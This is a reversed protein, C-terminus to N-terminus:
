TTGFDTLVNYLVPLAYPLIEPDDLNSIISPLRGANVLRGRNEDPVTLVVYVIDWPSLWSGTDACTNGILRLAHIKLPQSIGDMEIIGLFFELIGSDGM